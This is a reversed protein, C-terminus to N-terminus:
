RLVVWYNGPALALPWPPMAPAGRLQWRAAGRGASILVGAGEDVSALACPETLEAVM